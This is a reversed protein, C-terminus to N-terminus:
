PICKDDAAALPSFYGKICNTNIICLQIHTKEMFGSNDYVPDGEIFVGRISDFPQKNSERNYQHVRQIVACDLERILLGKNNKLDKNIPLPTNTLECQMKLLEYGMKLIASSKYDTLNLCYGLDIVAGIVAPDKIKRHQKAWELAREYNYEWFYIGNGLWDYENRSAALPEHKYLVRKYTTKDCGHFAIILNPLKSYM